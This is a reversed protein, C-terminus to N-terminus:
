PKAHRDGCGRELRSNLAPTFATARVLLEVIGKTLEGALKKKKQRQKIASM